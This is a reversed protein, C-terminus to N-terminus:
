LWVHARLDVIAGDMTMALSRSANAVCRHQALRAAQSACVRAVAGKAGAKLASHTQTEVGALQARGFHHVM